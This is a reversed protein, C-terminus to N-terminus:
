GLPSGKLVANPNATVLKLAATRGILVAAEGLARSLIPKRWLSGHGDSALFHVAQKKLLFRACFQADPGLSGGLSEGTMQVLTGAKVLELLVSPNKIISPHREPHAIVPTFGALLAKFLVQRADAPIHTPPFEILAYVSGNLTYGALGEVAVDWGLEAGPLIELPLDAKRLEENFRATQRRIDEPSLCRDKVHPTAVIRRIGDGVAIRAM